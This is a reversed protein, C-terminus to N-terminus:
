CTQGRASRQQNRKRKDQSRHMVFSDVICVRHVSEDRVKKDIADEQKRKNERTTQTRRTHRTFKGIEDIINVGTLKSRTTDSTNASGEM